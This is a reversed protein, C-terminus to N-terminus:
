NSPKAIGMKTVVKECLAVLSTANMVDLTTLEAGFNMRVWNRFEVAALSDMGYVSLPRAPDMRESLRLQRSFQAGIAAVAATVVAARNPDSSKALLFFAELDKDGSSDGIAASSRSAGDGHSVLASFRADRQVLESDQPQPIVIGTIMQSQSAVNLRHQPDPHQQLISYDVIRRLLAENIGFWKSRDFRKELDENGQIVGVDEVPGLNISLGPLNLKLRHAALADEFVNGGAYNAQGKQGVLGSTSSLMTFFVIPEKKEM